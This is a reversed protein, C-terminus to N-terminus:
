EDDDEEDIDPNYDDATLSYHRACLYEDDLENEADEGCGPVACPTADLYTPYSHDFEMQVRDFSM